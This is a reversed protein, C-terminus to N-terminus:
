TQEKEDTLPKALLAATQAGEMRELTALAWELEARDRRDFANRVV